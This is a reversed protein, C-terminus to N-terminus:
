PEDEKRGKNDQPERVMALLNELKKIELELAKKPEKNALATKVEKTQRRLNPSLKVCHVTGKSDGVILIPHHLNFSVHNLRAKKRPIIPQSCVPHYKDVHLDFVHVKGDITVAAFVTSSYPAWAVDGVQSNLDFMFLPKRSNHDWIKIMWESACTIFISPVYQNWAINYISTNHAPYTELYKSSYETTCKYIVGEDTGVLFMTEDTPNFNVCRGGERLNDRVLEESFNELHRSFKISMTDTHWLATKVITWNTVRGDGSVSYFNLYGDLNDKAWKIQWVIDQHKGNNATSLYFPDQSHVQLNYVAVSGDALGAALMHPHRPHIDVCMVGCHAKCLYEPFSPNKLSFVCVYSEEPKDQEYFNYTGYSAAFLDTYCPNWCLCTIEMDRAKEFNFKWLPLLTGETERFEDSADEWYKFDLAIDNYTNQNVMRELIKAAKLMNRNLDENPDPKKDSLIRKISYASVNEEKKGKNKEQEEQLEKQKEYATYADFIIWQNVSDSFNARPPPETQIAASKMANNMTQTAREVFSFQNQLKKDGGDGDEDDSDRRRPKVAKVKEADRAVQDRKATQNRKTREEDLDEDHEDEDLGNMAGGGAQIQKKAEVSDRHFCTSEIELHDIMTESLKINIYEGSTYDFRVVNKPAQPNKATLTIVVDEDADEEYTGNLKGRSIKPTPRIMTQTKIWSHLSSIGELIGNAEGEHGPGGAPLNGGGGKKGAVGGFPTATGSGKGRILASKAFSTKGPSKLPLNPM